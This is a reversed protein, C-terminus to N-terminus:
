KENQLLNDIKIKRAKALIEVNDMMDLMQKSLTEDSAIYDLIDDIDLKNLVKTSDLSEIVAYINKYLAIADPDFHYLIDDIDADIDLIKEYEIVVEGKRTAEIKAEDAKIIITM